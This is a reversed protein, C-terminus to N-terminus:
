LRSRELLGAIRAREGLLRAEREAWAREEALLAQEEANSRKLLEDVSLLQALVREELASRRGAISALERELLPDAPGGRQEALERIRQELAPPRGNARSSAPWCTIGHARRMSARGARRWSATPPKWRMPSLQPRAPAELRYNIWAEGM